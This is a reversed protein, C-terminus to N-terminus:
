HWHRSVTSRRDRRTHRAPPAARISRFCALPTRRARACLLSEWRCTTNTAADFWEPLEGAERFMDILYSHDNACLLAEARSSRFFNIYASAEQQARNGALERAYLAPHVANIQVLGPLQEPYTMGYAWSIAGGWDHGVLVFEKYGLYEALARIDEVAYRARYAKTEAPKGSLNIGRLDPAVAYCRSGFHLLMDKWAYWFEPFGHLFLLLPRGRDGTSAFHMDIGNVHVTHHQINALDKGTKM